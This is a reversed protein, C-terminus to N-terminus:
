LHFRLSPRGARTVARLVAAGVDGIHNGWLRLQTLAINGALATALATAGCDGRVPRARIESSM